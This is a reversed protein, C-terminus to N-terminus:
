SAYVEAKLYGVEELLRNMDMEEKERHQRLAMMYEDKEAECQAKSLYLQELEEELQQKEREMQQRQDFELQLLNEMAVVRKQHLMEVWQFFRMRLMTRRVAAQYYRVKGEEQGEKEKDLSAGMEKSHKNHTKEANKYKEQEKMIQNQLQSLNKNRIYNAWGTYCRTKLGLHVYKFHAMLRKAADQKKENKIKNAMVQQFNATKDMMGAKIAAGTQSPASGPGGMSSAMSGPSTPVCILSPDNPNFLAAPASDFDVKGRVSSDLLSSFMNARAEQAEKQGKMVELNRDLRDREETLMRVDEQLRSRHKRTMEAFLLTHHYVWTSFGKALRRHRWRRCCAGMKIKANNRKTTLLETAYAKATVEAKAKEWKLDANMGVLSQIEEKVKKALENVIKIHNHVQKAPNEEDGFALEGTIGWGLADAAENIAGSANAPRNAETSTTISRKLELQSWKLEQLCTRMEDEMDKIILDTSQRARMYEGSEKQRESQEQRLLDELRRNDAKMEKLDILLDQLGRAVRAKTPSLVKGGGSSYEPEPEMTGRDYGSADLGYSTSLDRVSVGGPLGPTYGAERGSQWPM